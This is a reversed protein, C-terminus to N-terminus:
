GTLYGILIVKAPQQSDAPPTATLFVATLLGFLISKMMAKDGIYKSVVSQQFGLAKM